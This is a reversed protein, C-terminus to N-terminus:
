LFRSRIHGPKMLQFAIKSQAYSLFDVKMNMKLAAKELLDALEISEQIKNFGVLNKIMHYGTQFVRGGKTQILGFFLM